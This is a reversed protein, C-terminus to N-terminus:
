VSLAPSVADARRHSRRGAAAHEQHAKSCGSVGTAITFARRQRRRLAAALQQCYSLGVEAGHNLHRRPPAATGALRWGGSQRRREILVGDAGIM